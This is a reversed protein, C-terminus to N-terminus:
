YEKNTFSLVYLPLRLAGCGAADNGIAAVDAHCHLNRM